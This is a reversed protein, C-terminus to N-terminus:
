AEDTEEPAPAEAEPASAPAEVQADEVEADEPEPAAPPDIRRAVIVKAPRLLREHYFYGREFEQMVTGTDFETTPIQQFAEHRQPDFREGVSTFGRVDHRELTSSFQRLVMEVGQVISATDVIESKTAHELARELNDVVPLVDKVFRESGFKRMDERERAARKRFNELDSMARLAKNKFDDRAAEEAAVRENLADVEARAAELAGQAEALQERLARIEADAAASAVSSLEVTEVERPALGIVEVEGDEGEPTEGTAEVVPAAEPADHKRAERLARLAARADERAARASESRQRLAEASVGRVQASTHQEPTEAPAAEGEENITAPGASLLEDEEASADAGGDGEGEAEAGTDEDGLYGDEEADEGGFVFEEGGEDDPDLFLSDGSLAGDAPQAQADHQAQAGEQPVQEDQQAPAGGELETDHHESLREEVRSRGPAVDM